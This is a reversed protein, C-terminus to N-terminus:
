LHSPLSVGGDLGISIEKEEASLLVTVVEKVTEPGPLREIFSWTV